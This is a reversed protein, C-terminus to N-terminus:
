SHLSVSLNPLSGPPFHFKILVFRQATKDVVLKTITQYIETRTRPLHGQGDEVLVCLYMLYLPNKMLNIIDNNGHHDLLARFTEEM